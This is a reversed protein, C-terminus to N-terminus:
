VASKIGLEGCLSDEFDIGIPNSTNLIDGTPYFAINFVTSTQTPKVSPFLPCPERVQNISLHPVATPLHQEDSIALGNDFDCTLKSSVRCRWFQQLPILRMGKCININM